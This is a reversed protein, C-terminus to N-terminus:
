LAPTRAAEIRGAMHVDKETLGGADHTSLRMTVKNYRIDIDPHHQAAEAEDAVRNVFAIARVFDEFRFTRAIEDGERTWGELGDLAKRVEDDTLKRAM